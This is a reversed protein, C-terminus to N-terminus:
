RPPSYRSGCPSPRRRASCPTFAGAICCGRHMAAPPGGAPNRKSFADGRRQRHQHPRRGLINRPPCIKITSYAADVASTRASLQRYGDKRWLRPGEPFVASAMMGGKKQKAKVPSRTDAEDPGGRSRWGCATTRIRFSATARDADGRLEDYGTCMEVITFVDRCSIKHRVLSPYEAGEDTPRRRVTSRRSRHTASPEDDCGASAGVRYHPPQPFRRQWKTM